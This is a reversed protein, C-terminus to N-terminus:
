AVEKLSLGWNNKHCFDLILGFERASYSCLPLESVVNRNKRIIQDAIKGCLEPPIINGDPINRYKKAVGAKRLFSPFASRSTKLAGMLFTNNEHVGILELRM